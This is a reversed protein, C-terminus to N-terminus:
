SALKVLKLKRSNANALTNESYSIRHCLTRKGVTCLDKKLYCTHRQLATAQCQWVLVHDQQKTQNGLFRGSRFSFILETEVFLRSLLFFDINARRSILGVLTLTLWHHTALQSCYSYNTLLQLQMIVLSTEQSIKTEQLKCTGSTM